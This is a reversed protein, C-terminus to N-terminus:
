VDVIMEWNSLIALQQVPISLSNNAAISEKLDIHATKVSSWRGKEITADMNRFLM